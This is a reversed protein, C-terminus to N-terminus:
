LKAAVIGLGTGADLSSLELRQAEQVLEAWLARGRSGTGQALLAALGAVHPTAMSTGSITNYRKQGPWSSYVNVGPAAVDIQGGRAALSQASFDAIQLDSDLAAVAMVYPSNAPTGVFGPDGQARRANNGAAAVILSGQDLARRGAQVYPPHVDRVDAGLSMSIVHCENEIAWDIGALISTDTGSGNTGLVKGAFIDAEYAVGYGPGTQPTRPGCASGICHTGHGHGDSADEGSVFSKTTVSRDAFDPHAADFGTDLVAVRIGKGSLESDLARVAQLGWTAEDTDAFSTSPAESLVHYTLEPVFRLAAREDSARVQLAQLQTPEGDVVGIGLRPFYTDTTFGQASLLRPAYVNRQEDDTTDFLVVFRNSSAETTHLTNPQYM